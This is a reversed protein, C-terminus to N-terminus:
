RGDHAPRARRRGLVGGLDDPRAGDAVEQLLVPRGLDDPREAGHEVAARHHGRPEGRLQEVSEGVADVALPLEAPREGVCGHLDLLDRVGLGLEQRVDGV